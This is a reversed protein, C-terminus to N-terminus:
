FGEFSLVQVLPYVSFVYMCVYMCAPVPLCVSPAM